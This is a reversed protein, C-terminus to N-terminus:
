QLRLETLGEILHDLWIFELHLESILYGLSTASEITVVHASSIAMM